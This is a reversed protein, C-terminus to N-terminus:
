LSGGLRHETSVPNTAALPQDPRPVDESSGASAASIIHNKWAVRISDVGSGIRRYSRWHASRPAPAPVAAVRWSASLGAPCGTFSAVGTIMALPLM